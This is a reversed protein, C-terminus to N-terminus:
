KKNQKHYKDLYPFSNQTLHETYLSDEFLDSIEATYLSKFHTRNVAGSYFHICANEYSQLLEKVADSLKTSQFKALADNKNEFVINNELADALSSKATTIQSCITAEIATISYFKNKNYVKVSIFIGIISVIFAGLSILGSNTFAISNLIQLIEQINLLINCTYM